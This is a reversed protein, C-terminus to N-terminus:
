EDNKVAFWVRGARVYRNLTWISMNQLWGANQVKDNLYLCQQDMVTEAAMGITLVLDGKRYKPKYLAM